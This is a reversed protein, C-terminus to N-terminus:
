KGNVYYHATALFRYIPSNFKFGTSDDTIWTLQSYYPRMKKKEVFVALLVEHMYGFVRVQSIPYNEPHIRKEAELLISFVWSCYEDFDKNKMIFMNHSIQLRKNYYVEDYAKLYSPSIESIIEKLIDFDKPNYNKICIKNFNYAFTYPVPLVIDYKSFVDDMDPLHIQNIEEAKASPIIKIPAGTNQSFNFFRRYSCLGIYKPKDAINKFYWYLGTIESWYRNRSSINDGTDDKQMPLDIGTEAAGCQINFYAENKPILNISRYFCVMISLLNQKM